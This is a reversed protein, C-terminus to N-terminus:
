SPFTITLLMHRLSAISSLCREAKQIISTPNLTQLADPPQVEQYWDDTTLKVQNTSRQVIIHM